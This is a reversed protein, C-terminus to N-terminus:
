ATRYVLPIKIKLFAAFARTRACSCVCACPFVNTYLRYINVLYHRCSLCLTTWADPSLFLSAGYGNDPRFLFPQYQKTTTTTKHTHTNHTHTYTFSVRHSHLLSTFVTYVCFQVTDTGPITFPSNEGKWCLQSVIGM